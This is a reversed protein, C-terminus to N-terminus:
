DEYKKILLSANHGGFGLSNSLAYKIDMKVPGNGVYDLDCQEDPVQYGVTQHILGEIRQDEGFDQIAEFKGIAADLVQAGRQIAQRSAEGALTPVPVPQPQSLSARAGQYLPSDM